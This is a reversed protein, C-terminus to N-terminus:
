ILSANTSNTMSQTHIFPSISHRIPHAIVVAMWYIADIKMWYSGFKRMNELPIQGPASERRARWLVLAQRHKDLAFDESVKGHSITVYVQEPNLTKFGRMIIWWISMNTWQPYLPHVMWKFSTLKRYSRWGRETEQFHPLQACSKFVWCKKM